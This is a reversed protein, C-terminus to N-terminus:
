VQDKSLNFTIEVRFMTSMYGEGNSSVPKAEFDLVKVENTKYYCKLNEAVFHENLWEPISSKADTSMTIEKKGSVSNYICSVSINLKKVAIM